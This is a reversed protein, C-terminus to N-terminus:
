FFGTLSKRTTRLLCVQGRCIKAQQCFACMMLHYGLHEIKVPIIVLIFKKLLGPADAKFVDDKVDLIAIHQIDDLM